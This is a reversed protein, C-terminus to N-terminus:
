PYMVRFNRIDFKPIKNEDDLSQHHIMLADAFDALMREPFDAVWERQSVILPSVMLMVYVAMKKLVTEDKTDYAHHLFQRIADDKIKSPPGPTTVLLHTIKLMAFVKEDVNELKLTKTTAEGYEPNTFANKFFPLYHIIADVFTPVFEPNPKCFNVHNKKPPPPRRVPVFLTDTNSYEPPARAVTGHPRGNRVNSQGRGSSM